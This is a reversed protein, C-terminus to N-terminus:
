VEYYYKKKEFIHPKLFLLSLVAKFGVEYGM